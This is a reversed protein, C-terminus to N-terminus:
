RQQVLRAGLLVPLGGRDEGAVHRAARHPAAPWGPGAAAVMTVDDRLCCRGAPGTRHGGRGAAGEDTPCDDAYGRSRIIQPADDAADPDADGDSPGGGADARAVM